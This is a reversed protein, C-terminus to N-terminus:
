EAGSGVQAALMQRLEAQVDARRAGYQKLPLLLEHLSITRVTLWSVKALYPKNKGAAYVHSLASSWPKCGRPYEVPEIHPAFAPVLNNCIFENWGHRRTYVLFVKGRNSYRFWVAKVALFILVPLCLIAALAVLLIAILPYLLFRLAKM